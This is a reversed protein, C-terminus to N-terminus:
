RSQPIVSYAAKMGEKGKKHFNASLIRRFMMCQLGSTKDWSTSFKCKCRRTRPDVRLYIPCKNFIFHTSEPTFTFMKAEVLTWNLGVVTCTGLKASVQSSGSLLTHGVLLLPGGRYNWGKRKTTWWLLPHVSVQSDVLLYHSTQTLELM